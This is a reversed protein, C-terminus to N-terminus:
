YKTSAINEPEGIDGLNKIIEFFSRYVCISHGFYGLNGFAKEGTLVKGKAEEMTVEEWFGVAEIDILEAYENAVLVGTLENYWEITEEIEWPSAVYDCEDFLYLKIESM